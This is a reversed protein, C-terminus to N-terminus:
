VKEIKKVYEYITKRSIGLLEAVTTKNLDPDSTYLAKFQEFTGGQALKITKKMDNIETSAVKIKKAMNVFYKSLREAKLMSDKSITTYYEMTLGKHFASFTNILLAFRPIYSKQKPLMSKMYENEEDGRQQDTIENFIRKWEAKAEDSLVAEYPEIEDELDYKVM